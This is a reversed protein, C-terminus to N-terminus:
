VELAPVDDAVLPLAVTVTRARRRIAGAQGLPARLLRIGDGLERSPVQRLDPVLHRDGGVPRTRAVLRRLPPVPHPLVLRTANRQRALARPSGGRAKAQSARVRRRCSVATIVM